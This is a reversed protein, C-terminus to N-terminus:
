RKEDIKFVLKYKYNTKNKITDIEGLSFDEILNKKATLSYYGYPINYEYIIISLFYIIVFAKKLDL